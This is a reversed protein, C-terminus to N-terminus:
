ENRLCRVSIGDRWSLNVIYRGVINNGYYTTWYYAGPNQQLTSSWYDGANGLHEFHDLYGVGAPLGTFGSENNGNGSYNWGSASKLKYGANTGTGGITSCNVTPDLYTTLECLENDAPIHWGNPCIGQSGETTSYKMMEEWQYLGGYLECNSDENDYCWKEIIGNNQQNANGDVKVGIDLNERLWCQSGILVTNYTKGEYEVTPMGPCPAGYTCELTTMTLQTIQSNCSQSYAWAYRHYLTNCALGSEIKSTDAGLDIASNIDNVTNWKYGTAGTVSHWKWTIETQTANHISEQPAAPGICMTCFKYWSGYLHMALVGDGDEGCDSCFIILGDAPNSIANMQEQTMRPPLFGKNSSSLELLASNNILGSGIGVSGQSYYINNGQKIWFGGNGANKAYLAYPVSLLESTGLVTGNLSVRLFYPGAGWDIAEFGSADQSGVELNVLGFENTICDFIESCVVPGTEIGKLIEMTLSVPQNAIVQGASNRIVTQYKFSLPVQGETSEFFLTLVLLFFTFKKM